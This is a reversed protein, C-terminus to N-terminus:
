TYINFHPTEPATRVTNDPSPSSPISLSGQTDDSYDPPPLLVNEEEEQELLSGESQSRVPTGLSSSPVFM